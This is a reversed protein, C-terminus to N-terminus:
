QLDWKRMMPMIISEGCHRKRSVWATHTHAQTTAVAGGVGWGEEAAAAVGSSMEDASGLNMSTM